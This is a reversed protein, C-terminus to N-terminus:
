RNERHLFARIKILDLLSRLYDSSKISSGKRCSWEMLPLEFICNEPHASADKGAMVLLRAIIEVDFLWRSIFPRSFLSEVQPTLRFVKAGCQTDYCAIGLSVSVLTASIRGLYHRLAGREVRRGLLKIRAGTVLATHPNSDLVELFRLIEKLPAALDADWYGAYDTGSSFVAKMGARIAEAKGANQGLRLMSARGPIASVLGEIKEVTSDTSGDDVFLFNVSDQKECFREFEDAALRRSENFCPIIMVARCKM